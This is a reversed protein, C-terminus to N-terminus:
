LHDKQNRQEDKLRRNEEVLKKICEEYNGMRGEIQEMTFDTVLWFGPVRPDRYKAIRTLM